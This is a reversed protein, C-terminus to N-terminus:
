LEPWEPDPYSNWKLGNSHMFYEIASRLGRAKPIGAHQGPRAAWEAEIAQIEREIRTPLRM